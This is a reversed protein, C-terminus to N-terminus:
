GALIEAEEPLESILREVHTQPIHGDLYEIEIITAEVPADVGSRKGVKIPEVKLDIIAPSDGPILGSYRLCDITAKASVNDRDRERNTAVWARVRIRASGPAAGEVEGLAIRIAALELEAPSRPDGAQHLAKLNEDFRAGLTSIRDNSAIKM